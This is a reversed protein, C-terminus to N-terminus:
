RDEENLCEPGDCETTEIVRGLDRADREAYYNGDGEDDVQYDDDRLQEALEAAYSTAEEFSSFTAPDSDPLYGPTNEIVHWHATM